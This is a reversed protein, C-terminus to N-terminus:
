TVACLSRLLHLLKKGSSIEKDAICNKDPCARMRHNLWITHWGAQSAGAIDSEYTDGVYWTKEPQFHMREGVAQFARVDPKHYGLEGSIFIQEPSFWKQLNLAEAKRWQGKYNGNTLVAIPLDAEKCYDLVKRMFDFMEINTQYYRYKAEFEDSEERKINLGVDQYTMRLREHFSDRSSIEGNKERELIIDSYIRSKKFLEMPDASVRDAFFHEHAKKFPAMLDYMTDDIDFVLNIKM